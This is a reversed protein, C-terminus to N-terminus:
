SSLKLKLRNYCDFFFPLSLPPSPSLLPSLSLSLLSSSLSLPLPSLSLLSSLPSPFHLSLPFPSFLFSSLFSLHLVQQARTTTKTLNDEVQAIM